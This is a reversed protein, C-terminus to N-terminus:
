LVRTIGAYIEFCSEQLLSTFVLLNAIVRVESGIRGVLRHGSGIRGVLRANKQLSASVRVGSGIRGVLRPGSGIQRVDSLPCVLLLLLLLVCLM